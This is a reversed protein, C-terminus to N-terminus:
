LIDDYSWTNQFLITKTTNAEQLMLNIAPAPWQMNKYALFIFSFTAVVLCTEVKNVIEQVM